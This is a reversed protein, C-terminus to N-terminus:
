DEVNFTEMWATALAHIQAQAEAPTLTADWVEVLFDGLGLDYYVYMAQITPDNPLGVLPEFRNYSLAASFEAKIPDDSFDPMIDSDLELAPLYWSNDIMTTMTEQTYLWRMVEHAASPYDTYANIVFGKTKVFPTLDQGNWTPMQGFRFTLDSDTIQGQMDMWTGVLSFPYAGELYADWRWGMANGALTAGTEDKNMHTNSFAQIFELGAKFEPEDFGPTNYDGEPYLQWGGATLSSYGSWPEQISIPFFEYITQGNFVPRETEYQEAWEFIQEWTNFVDPLGNGTTDTTDIGWAELMTQNWSFAMGDYFAPMYVVGRESFFDFATNLTDRQGLAVFYEHLEYLYDYQPTIVLAVDPASGKGVEIGQMGSSDSNNSYYERFTLKGALEPFDADWQAVLAQGMSVSDVGIEIIAGEEWEFRGTTENFFVEFDVRNARVGTDHHNIWWNGNEGFHPNLADVDSVGQEILIGDIWAEYSEHILGAETVMEYILALTNSVSVVLDVDITTTFTEYKVTITHKGISSLLELGEADIMSEDLDIFVYSGNKHNVRIRITSLDFLEIDYSSELSQADVEISDIEFAVKQIEDDVSLNCAALVLGFLSVVLLMFVKQLFMTVGELKIYYYFITLGVLPFSVRNRLQKVIRYVSKTGKGIYNYCLFMKRLISNKKLIYGHLAAEHM